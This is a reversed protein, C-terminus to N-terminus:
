ADAARDRADVLGSDASRNPFNLGFADRARAYLAAPALRDRCVAATAERLPVAFVRRGGSAFSVGVSLAPCGASHCRHQSRCALSTTNPFPMRVQPHAPQLVRDLM